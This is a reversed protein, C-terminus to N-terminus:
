KQGSLWRKILFGSIEDVGRQADDGGLNTAVVLAADRSPALWIAAFFMTNSGTHGLAIGGAWDRQLVAWGFAYDEAPNPTHLKTYTPSSLLSSRGHAGRLQEIAYRAFDGISCHVGGAPAIAAPNDDGPGPKVAITEGNERVHGLPEGTPNNRAPAGFGASSMGLPQFIMEMMLEEWTRGTVKEIMAGAIAYGANSYLFRTGPRAAPPEALIHKLLYRRQDRPSTHLIWEPNALSDSWRGQWGARDEPLGARHALLQQLTVQRYQRNMRREPFVSGLRTKWSLLGKEVMEAALMATM